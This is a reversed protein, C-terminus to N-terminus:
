VSVKGKSLLSDVYGKNPVRLKMGLRVDVPLKDLNNALAIVWWLDADGYSDYAVLDLRGVYQEDVDVFTDNDQPVLTPLGPNDWFIEESVQLLDSFNLWSNKSIEVQM